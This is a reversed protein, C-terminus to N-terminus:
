FRMTGFYAFIVFEVFVAEVNHTWVKHLINEAGGEKENKRKRIEECDCVWM